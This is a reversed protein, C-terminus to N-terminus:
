WVSLQDQVERWVQGRPVISNGLGRLHAEWTSRRQPRPDQRRHSPHPRKSQITDILSGLIIFLFLYLTSFPRVISRWSGNKRKSTRRSILTFLRMSWALSRWLSLLRRVTLLTTQISAIIDSMLWHMGFVLRLELQFGVVDSVGVAEVMLCAHYSFFAMLSHFFVRFECLGLRGRRRSKSLWRARQLFGDIWLVLAWIKDEYLARSLWDIVAEVKWFRLHVLDWLLCEIKM